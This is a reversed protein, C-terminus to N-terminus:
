SSGMASMGHAIVWELTRGVHGGEGVEMGVDHGIFLTALPSSSALEKEPLVNTM